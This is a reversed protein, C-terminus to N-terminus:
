QSDPTAVWSVGPWRNGGDNAVPPGPTSRGSDVIETIKSRLRDVVDPRETALDRTEALDADLDYLEFRPEDSKPEVFRPQLSGGSGRIMNLKWRGDRIAFHGSASHHIVSPRPPPDDGRLAPLFSVSDEGEEPELENGLIGALTALLDTQCVLDSSSSGPAVVSPWRVIFPVRHGGEYLDRKGGRLGGASAHGFRNLRERYTTEPGNDSTALVLTDRALGTEDLTNLLTGIHADTEIVFDGYAGADSRGQFEELPIVPKHPSTYAVYLFFRDDDGAKDAFEELWAAARKTFETLVTQDDFSPAVELEGEARSESYPPTIRYDAIAIANPKKRTWLVPPDLIRRNEIYTLVGYNMSAPIGFFYDFGRDAPGEAVPKSWDRNGKTGHFRMGLHWKGVMATSYGARKLFSAVTTRDDAILSDGEAGMVGKKLRTRWAYRGTLLGYRSPTCVTDPSHADTFAMGERVLRDLNPTKIKSDPNLASVDGYGQDDTYIVLVHPRATQPDATCRAATFLTAAILALLAIKTRVGLIRTTGTSELLM